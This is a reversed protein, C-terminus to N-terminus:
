VVFTYRAVSYNQDVDVAYAFLTHIGPALHQKGLQWSAGVHLPRQLTDLFWTIRVVNPNNGTFAECKLTANGALPIAAISIYPPM